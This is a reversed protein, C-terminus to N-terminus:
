VHIATPLGEDFCRKSDAFSGVIQNVDVDAARGQGCLVEADQCLSSFQEFGLGLASGKLFHLDEELASRDPGQGLREIVDEVEDIFLAVVEDFDEAGVDEKLTKVRNWDIM